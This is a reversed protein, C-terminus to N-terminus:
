VSRETDAAVEDRLSRLREELMRLMYAIDDVSVAEEGQKPIQGLAELAQEVHTLANDIPDLLQSPQTM